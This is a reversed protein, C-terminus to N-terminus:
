LNPLFLYPTDTYGTTFGCFNKNHDLPAMYKDPDGKKYGYITGAMMFGIFVLFVILCLLDTVSRDKVAGDATINSADKVNFNSSDEGYKDNM